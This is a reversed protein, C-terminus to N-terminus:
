FTDISGLNNIFAAWFQGTFILIPGSVDMIVWRLYMSVFRYRTNEHYPKLHKLLTTEISLWRGQKDATNYKFAVSYLIRVRYVKFRINRWCFFFQSNGIANKRLSKLVTALIIGKGWILTKITIFRKRIKFFYRNIYPDM